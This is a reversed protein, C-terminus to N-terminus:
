ATGEVCRRLVRLVDRAEQETLSAFGIRLGRENGEEVAYSRSPAFSLGIAPAHAEIRDLMANMTRALTAIEDDTNPM